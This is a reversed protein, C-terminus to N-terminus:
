AMAPASRVRGRDVGSGVPDLVQEAGPGHEGPGHGLPQGCLDVGVQGAQQQEGLGPRRPARARGQQAGGLLVGAPLLEPRQLAPDAAEEVPEALLRALDLGLRHGREGDGLPPDRPHGGVPEGVPLDGAFQDDGDLGDLPVEGM